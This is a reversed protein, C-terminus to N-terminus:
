CGEMEGPAPGYEARRAEETEKVWEELAATPVEYMARIFEPGREATFTAAAYTM